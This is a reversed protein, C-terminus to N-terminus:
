ICWPTYTASIDGNTWSSCSPGNCARVRVWTTGTVDIHAFAATGSYLSFPSSYISSYSGQLEYHSFPGSSGSWYVWNSGYCLMREVTATTPSTPKAVADGLQILPITYSTAGQTFSIPLGTDKLHDVIVHVPVSTKPWLNRLGAFAGAVHPAAMSTGFSYGYSSGPIASLVCQHTGTCLFSANGMGGPALIDLASSANSYNAHNNSKDTAGVALTNEICAPAAIINALGDMASNGSAAVVAVGAGTLLDVLQALDTYAVDCYGPFWAFWGYSMNVAAIDLTSRMSYVHELAAETDSIDFGLCPGPDWGCNDSLSGTRVTMLNGAYAVGKLVPGSPPVTQQSGIAIGAVHTGHDCAASGTCTEGSGASVSGWSHGAPCGAYSFKNTSFCAEGVIKGSFMPHSRQVGSDLIAVTHGSGTAGGSHATGAQIQPLTEQLFARMSVEQYLVQIGADALLWTLGQADAEVIALPLPLLEKIITLSNNALEEPVRERLQHFTEAHRTGIQEALEDDVGMAYPDYGPGTYVQIILRQPSSLGAFEELLETAIRPDLVNGEGDKRVVLREPPLAQALLPPAFVSITLSAALLKSFLRSM